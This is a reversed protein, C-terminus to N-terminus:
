SRHKEHIAAEADDFMAAMRQRLAAKLQAIQGFHAALKFAQEVLAIAMDLTQEPTV